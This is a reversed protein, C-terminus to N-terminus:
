EDKWVISLIYGLHHRFLVPVGGSGHVGGSTRTERRLVSEWEFGAICPLGRESSQQTETYFIIDRRTIIKGMGGPNSWMTGNCNRVALELHRTEYAM